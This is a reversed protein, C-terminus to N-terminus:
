LDGGTPGCDWDEVLQQSFHDKVTHISGTCFLIRTRIGLCCLVIVVQIANVLTLYQIDCLTSGPIGVPISKCLNCAYVISNAIYSKLSQPDKTDPPLM